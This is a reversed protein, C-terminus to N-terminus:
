IADVRQALWVWHSSRRHKLRTSVYTIRVRGVWGGETDIYSTQNPVTDPPPLLRMGASICEGPVKAFIGNDGPASPETTTATHKPNGMRAM